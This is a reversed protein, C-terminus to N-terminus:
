EISPHADKSSGAYGIGPQKERHHTLGTGAKVEVLITGSLDTYQIVPFCSSLSDQILADMAPVRHAAESITSPLKRCLKRTGNEPFIRVAIPNIMRMEM